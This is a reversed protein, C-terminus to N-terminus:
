VIIESSEVESWTKKASNEPKSDPTIAIGPTTISGTWYYYEKSDKDEIKWLKLNGKNIYYQIISRLDEENGVLYGIEGLITKLTGLRVNSIVYNVDKPDDAKQLINVLHAARHAGKERQTHKNLFKAILGPAVRKLTIGAPM